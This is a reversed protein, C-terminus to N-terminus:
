RRDRCAGDGELVAVPPLAVAGLVVRVWAVFAPAVKILLYPVEWLLSVVGFAAWARANV